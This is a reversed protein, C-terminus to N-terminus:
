KSSDRQFGASFESDVFVIAHAAVRTSSNTRHM